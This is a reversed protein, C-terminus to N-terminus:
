YKDETLQLSLDPLRVLGLCGGGGGREQERSCKKDGAEEVDDGPAVHDGGEEGGRGGGLHVVGRDLEGRTGAGGGVEGGRAGGGPLVGGPLPLLLPELIDM